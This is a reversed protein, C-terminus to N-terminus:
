SEQIRGKPRKEALQKKLHEATMAAQQAQTAAATARSEASRIQDAFTKAEGDVETMGMSAALVKREAAAIAEEKAALASQSAQYREGAQAIAEEKAAIAAEAEAISDLLEQKAKEEEQRTGM